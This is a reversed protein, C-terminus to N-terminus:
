LARYHLDVSHRGADLGAREYRTVPRWTPRDAVGGAFSPHADLHEITWEVYDAVDTALLFPAGPELRDAVLDLVDPRVFRRKHHRAKPWPDPFFLHIGALADSEIRHDLLDLGDGREVFLNPAEGAACAELLRVVGPTHVDIAVLDVDPFAACFALAAGGDGSGVELVLPRSRDQRTDLGHRPGLDALIGQIRPTVRGHRGHFTRIRADAWAADSHDASTM